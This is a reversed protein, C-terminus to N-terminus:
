KISACSVKRTHTHPQFIKSDIITLKM